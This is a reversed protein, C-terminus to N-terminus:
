GMDPMLEGKTIATEIQMNLDNVAQDQNGARGECGLARAYFGKDDQGIDTEFSDFAGFMHDTVQGDM